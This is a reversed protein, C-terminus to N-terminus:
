PVGDDGTCAAPMGDMEELSRVANSGVVRDCESHELALVIESLLGLTPGAPEAATSVGKLRRARCSPMSKTPPLGSSIVTTTATTDPIRYYKSPVYSGSSRISGFM